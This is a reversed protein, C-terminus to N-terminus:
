ENEIIEKEQAIRKIHPLFDFGNKELFNHLIYTNRTDSGADHHGDRPKLGLHNMIDILGKKPKEIGLYQQAYTKACPM